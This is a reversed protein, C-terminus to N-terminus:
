CQKVLSRSIKSYWSICIYVANQYLIELKKFKKSDIFIKKVFMTVIKVTYAFIAVRPRSLLFIIAGYSKDFVNVVFNQWTVWVANYIHDHSWLKTVKANRQSFNYSWKSLFKVLFFARKSPHEQNLDLLKPIVSPIAKM